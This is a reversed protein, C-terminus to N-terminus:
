WIKRALQKIWLRLVSALILFLGESQRKYQMPVAAYLQAKWQLLRPAICVFFEPSLIWIVWSLWPPSMIVPTVWGFHFIFQPM